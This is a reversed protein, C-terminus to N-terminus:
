TSEQDILEADWASSVEGEYAKRYVAMPSVYIEYGYQRQNEFAWAPVTMHPGDISLVFKFARAAGFVRDSPKAYAGAVYSAKPSVVVHPRWADSNLLDEFFSGQTGNTEIQIAKFHYQALEMFQILNHQLTPEGGTLVLIDTPKYGDLSRVVALLEVPTYLKGNDFEFSTDCFRCFHDKKGFNCGSTRIFVAPHGGFPGEGQITRFVSTILLKAGFQKYDRPKAARDVHQVVPIIKM